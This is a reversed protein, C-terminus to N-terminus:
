PRKAAASLLLREFFNAQVGVDEKGGGSGSNDGGGSGTQGDTRRVNGTDDGIGGGRNNSNSNTPRHNEKLDAMSTMRDIWGAHKKLWDGAAATTTKMTTARQKNNNNTTQAAKPGTQQQAQNQVEKSGQRESDPASTTSSHRSSLLPGIDQELSDGHADLVARVKGESDWHPPVILNEDPGWSPEGWVSTDVYGHSRITTASTAKTERVIGNAGDSSSRNTVRGAGGGLGDATASEENWRAVVARFITLARDDRRNHSSPDSGTGSGIGAIATATADDEIDDNDVENEDENEDHDDVDVDITHEPTVDATTDANETAALHSITIGCPFPARLALMRIAARQHRCTVCGAILAGRVVPTASTSTSTSKTDHNENDDKYDSTAFLIDLIQALEDATSVVLVVYISAPM